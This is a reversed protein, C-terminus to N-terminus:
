AGGPPTLPQSGILKLRMPRLVFWALTAAALNM